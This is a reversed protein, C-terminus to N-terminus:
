TNSIYLSIFYDGYDQLFWLFVGWFLKISLQGSPIFTRVVRPFVQSLKPM